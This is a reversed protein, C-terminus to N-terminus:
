SLYHQRKVLAIEMFIAKKTKNYADLAWYYWLLNAFQTYAKLKDHPINEGYYAHLFLRRVEDDVFANESLFSVVDFDPDNLGSYEFDILYINNDKLLINGNVLDNHCPVKTAKQYYSQACYIVELEQPLSMSPAVDKQYHKLRGFMDFDVLGKLSHNHIRKITEVLSTLSSTFNDKNLFSTNDIYDIVIFNDYFTHKPAIDIRSLSDSFVTENTLSNPGQLSKNKVKIVYKNNLLYNDNTIGNPLFVLQKIEHSLKSKIFNIVDKKILNNM